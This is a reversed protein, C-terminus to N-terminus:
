QLRELCRGRTPGISGVPMALATSIEKYSPAPDAVLMRLLAQDRAELRGFARWLIADREARLLEAYPEPSEAAVDPLQDGVPIQRGSSRLLRLCERKATTALWAGVRDPDHLDGLHEVLRLWTSQFVDAADAAGLRHGRAIAWVLGSYRDILDNWAEQEGTGARRVLRAIRDPPQHAARAASRRATKTPTM